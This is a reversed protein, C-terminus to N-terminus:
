RPYTNAATVLGFIAALGGATNFDDDMQRVFEERTEDVAAGLQRDLDTLAGNQEANQAMWRLNKVCTLLRELTGVTGDLRNFSFDLPARYHTQLM